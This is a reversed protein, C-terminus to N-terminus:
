LGLVRKIHAPLSACRELIRKDWKSLDCPKKKRPKDGQDFPEETFRTYKGDKKTKIVVTWYNETDLYPHQKFRGQWHSDLIEGGSAAVFNVREELPNASKADFLREYYLYVDTKEQRHYKKFEFRGLLYIERDEGFVIRPLM